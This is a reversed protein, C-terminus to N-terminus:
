LVRSVVLDPGWNDSFVNGPRTNIFVSADLGGSVPHPLQCPLIVNVDTDSVSKSVRVPMLVDKFLYKEGGDSTFQDELILRDFVVDTQM